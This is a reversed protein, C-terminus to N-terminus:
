VNDQERWVKDHAAREVLKVGDDLLARLREQEKKLADMGEHTIIYHKRRGDTRTEVIMGVKLFKDLLTYLTGPGVAIRGKSLGDVKEMIDVGCVEELLALLIYYMPETLTQFQDRAM